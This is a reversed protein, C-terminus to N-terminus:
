MGYIISSALLGGQDAQTHQEQMQQLYATLLAVAQMTQQAVTMYAM